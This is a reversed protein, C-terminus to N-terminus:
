GPVWRRAAIKQVHMVGHARCLFGELKVLSLLTERVDTDPGIYRSRKNRGVTYQM